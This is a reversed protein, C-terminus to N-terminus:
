GNNDGKPLLKPRPRPLERRFSTEIATPIEPPVKRMPLAPLVERNPLAPQAAEEYSLRLDQITLWYARRWHGMAWMISVFSGGILIPAAWAFPLPKVLSDGLWLFALPVLFALAATSV